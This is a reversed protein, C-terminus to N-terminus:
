NEKHLDLASQSAVRTYTRSRRRGTLATDLQALLLSINPLERGTRANFFLYRSAHLHKPDMCGFVLNDDSSSIKLRNNPTTYVQINGAIDPAIQGVRFQKKFEFEGGSLLFGRGLGEM